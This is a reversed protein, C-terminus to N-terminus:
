FDDFFGFPFYQNDNLSHYAIQKGLDRSGIITLIKM